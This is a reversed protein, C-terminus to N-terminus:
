LPVLPVGRLALLTSGLTMATYILTALALTVSRWKAAGRSRLLLWALLPLVQIATRVLM